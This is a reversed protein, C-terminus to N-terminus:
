VENHYKINTLFSIHQHGADELTAVGEIDINGDGELKCSLREAVEALKM